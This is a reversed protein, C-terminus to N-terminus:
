QNFLEEEEEEAADFLSNLNRPALDGSVVTRSTSRSPADPIIEPFPRVPTTFVQEEQEQTPQAM